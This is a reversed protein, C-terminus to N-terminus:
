DNSEVKNPVLARNIAVTYALSGPGGDETSEEVETEWRMGLVSPNCVGVAIDAKHPLPHAGPIWM